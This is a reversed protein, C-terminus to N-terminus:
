TPSSPFLTKLEEADFSYKKRDCNKPTTLALGLAGLRFNNGERTILRRCRM